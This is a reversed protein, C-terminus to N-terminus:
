KNKVWKEIVKPYHKHELLHVKNAIDESSDDKSIKCKKQFIITGDDYHENV